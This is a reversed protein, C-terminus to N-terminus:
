GQDIDSLRASLYSESSEQDPYSGGYLRNSKEYTVVGRTTCALRDGTLGWAFAVQGKAKAFMRTDAACERQHLSCNDECQKSLPEGKM